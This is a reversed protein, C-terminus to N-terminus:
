QCKNDFIIIKFNFNDSIGHFKEKDIYIKDLM